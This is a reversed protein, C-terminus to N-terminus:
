IVVLESWSEMVSRPPSVLCVHQSVPFQPCFVECPPCVVLVYQPPCVILVRFPGSCIFSLVLVVLSSVLLCLFVLCHCCLLLLRPGFVLGAPVRVGVRDTVDILKCLGFSPVCAVFRPLFALPLDLFLM